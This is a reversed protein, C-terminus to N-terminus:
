KIEYEEVGAAKFFEYTQDLSPDEPIVLIMEETSRTLLIRYTDQMISSLEKGYKRQISTSVNIAWQYKGNKNEIYYDGGFFIIPLDLELGQTFMESGIDIRGNDLNCCDGNYWSCSGGTYWKHAESYKSVIDEIMGGSLNEVRSTENKSSCLVGYLYSDKRNKDRKKKLRQLISEGTDSGKYLKPLSRIIKIKVNVMKKLRKLEEKAGVADGALVLEVWKSSDVFHNRLSTDLFLEDTQEVNVGKFTEIYKKPVYVKWSQNKKLEEVWAEIGGEGHGPRQGDGILCIISANEPYKVQKLILEPDPCKIKYNEKWFRQAEDFILVREECFDSNGYNTRFSSLMQIESKESLTKSLVNQLAGNGTYYRANMHEGHCGFLTILGVMTKGAGPVGSVFIINKEDKKVLEFIKDQTTHLYQYPISSIKSYINETGNKLEEKLCKGVEWIKQGRVRQGNVWEYVENESLPEVEEMKNVLTKFTDKGLIRKKDNDNLKYELETLDIDCANCDCMVLYSQVDMNNYNVVSHYTKLISQYDMFQAVYDLTVKNGGTKFELVIVKEKFLLIVDPRQTNENPLMYEFIIRVDNSLKSNSLQAVLFQIELNWAKIQTKSCERRYGIDDEYKKLENIIETCDKLNRLEKLTIIKGYNEM